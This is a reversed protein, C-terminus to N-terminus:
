EESFNFCSVGGAGGPINEVLYLSNTDIGHQRIIFVPGLGAIVGYLFFILM